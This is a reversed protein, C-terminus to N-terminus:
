GEALAGHVHVFEISLPSLLIVGCDFPPGDSSTTNRMRFSAGYTSPPHMTLTAAVQCGIPHFPDARTGDSGIVSPVIEPEEICMVLGHHFRTTPQVRVPVIIIKFKAVM